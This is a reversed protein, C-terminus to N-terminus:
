ALPPFAPTGAPLSEGMAALRLASRWAANSWPSTSEILVRRYARKAEEEQHKLRAAEGAYFFYDPRRIWPCARGPEPPEPFPDGPNWQLIASGMLWPFSPLSVSALTQFAERSGSADQRELRLLGSEFLAEQRLNVSSKPLNALIQRFCDHARDFDRRLRLFQGIHCLVSMRNRHNNNKLREAMSSLAKQFNGQMAFTLARDILLEDPSALDQLITAAELLLSQAEELCGRDRALFGRTRLLQARANPTGALPMGEAIAAASEDWRGRLRWIEARQGASLPVAAPM